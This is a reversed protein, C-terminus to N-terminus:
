NCSIANSNKDALLEHAIQIPETKPQKTKGNGNGVLFHNKVLNLIQVAYRTVRVREREYKLKRSLYNRSKNEKDTREVLVFPVLM